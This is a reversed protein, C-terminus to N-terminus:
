VHRWVEPPEEIVATTGFFGRIAMEASSRFYFEIAKSTGYDSLESNFEIDQWEDSVRVQAKYAKGNSVIRFVADRVNVDYCQVTM